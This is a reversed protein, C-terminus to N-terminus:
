RRPRRARRRRSQRRGPDETFAANRLIPSSMTGITAPRRATSLSPAVVARRGRASRSRRPPAPGAAPDSAGVDDSRDRHDTPRAGGRGRAGPAPTRRAGREDGHDPLDRHVAGAAGAHLDRVPPVRAPRRHGLMFLGAAASSSFSAVVFVLAAIGLLVFPSCTCSSSSRPRSSRRSRSTSCRGSSVRRRCTRRRITQAFAYTNTLRFSQNDVMPRHAVRQRGITLSSTGSVHAGVCRALLREQQRPGLLAQELRDRPPQRREHPGIM